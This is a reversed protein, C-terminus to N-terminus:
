GAGLRGRVYARVDFPKDVCDNPVSALFDAVAPDFVGGTMFVIQREFGPRLRGLDQFVQRGSVDAMMLDCLILDYPASSALHALAERGSTFVDVDYAGILSARYLRAIQPEDDIILVRRRLPGAEVAASAAPAAGPAEPTAVTPLRITFCAGGGPAEELAITGGLAEVLNKTVFLGLGTGEGVPKTTFFPDFIRDRLTAPVGPGNDAVEVVAHAGELRLSITIRNGGAGGPPMADAANLVLNVFIQILRTPDADVTAAPGLRLEVRARASTRTAVMKTAAALALGVDQPSRVEEDARSFATLDRTILRVREMGEAAEVLLDGLRASSDPTASALAETALRLAEISFSLPNNIEHAVSAALRGLAALREARDVQRQMRTRETVDTSVGIVGGIEGTPGRMPSLWTELVVGRVENTTRFTEGALARRHNELIQPSDAYLELMSQGVLEGSKFGMAELAAGESVTVRGDADSAFLVIPAHDLATRLKHRAVAASAESEVEATVDRFAVVVHSVGGGLDFIPKAVARVFVRGGDDRAIVLDDVGVTERRRLALAFPLREPPLARGERDQFHYRRPSELRHGGEGAELGTMRAIAANAYVLACGPARAVWIGVPLEELISLLFPSELSGSMPVAVDQWLGARRVAAFRIRAADSGSRTHQPRAIL